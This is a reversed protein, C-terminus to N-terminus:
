GKSFLVLFVFKVISGFRFIRWPQQLLRFFWELGMSRFIPPARRVQGSLYDFAGGVGIMVTVNTLALNKSMWKEQKPHGFAVFLLDLKRSNLNHYFDQERADSLVKNERKGVLNEFDFFKHNGNNDVQLNEQVFEVKIDPYFNHLREYLKVAVGELGGLLGIRYGKEQSLNVLKEMLDTGTVVPFDNGPMLRPFLFFPWFIVRKLFNKTAREKIAWGLRASDPIALGSDNLINRFNQDNQAAMIMEVNPTVVYNQKKAEIWSEIIAVSESFTIKDVPTSLLKIRAM